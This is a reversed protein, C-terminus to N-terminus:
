GRPAWLPAGGVLLDYGRALAEPEADYIRVIPVPEDMLGWSVIEAAHEAGWEHPPLRDDTWAALDRSALLAARDAGSLQSEAWAHALEHLVLLRAARSGPASRSCLHVEVPDRPRYLGANGGCPAVDDHVTVRVEPLALGALRFRELGWAVQATWDAPADITVSPAPVPDHAPVGADVPASALALVVAFARLRM